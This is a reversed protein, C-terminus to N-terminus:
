QLDKAMMIHPCGEDPFEEGEAKFGQKEYFSKARVQAALILRKGGLSIVLKETEALLAAGFGRDRYEKLVAIRGVTYAEEAKNYYFRCVAAPKGEDYLVIHKSFGDKEDFEETFGQEETFVKTRIFAADDPLSGYIKFYIMDSTYIGKAM